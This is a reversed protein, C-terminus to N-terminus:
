VVTNVLREKLDFHSAKFGCNEVAYYYVRPTWKLYYGLLYM